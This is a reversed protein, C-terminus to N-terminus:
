FELSFGATWGYVNDGFLVSSRLSVGELGDIVSRDVLELGGGVEFFYSFGLADSEDDGPLYTNSAFAIWRLERDLLNVGWVPGDFEARATLVGFTSSGELVSNSASFTNAYLQDYRVNAVYNIDTQPDTYGVHELEVAGGVMATNLWADFIIGKGANDLTQSDPGRTKSSDWIRSYGALFIPRIVTGEVIDFEVGAGGLFAITRIDISSTTTGKDSLQAAVDQKGVLYGVTGEVYPKIGDYVPEFTRSPSFKYSEIKDEKGDEDGVYFTAASVGPTVNFISLAQFAQSLNSREAADELAARLEQENPYVQADAASSLVLAALASIAVAIARRGM